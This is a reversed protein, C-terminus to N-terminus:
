NKPKLPLSAVPVKYKDKIYRLKQYIQNFLLEDDTRPSNRVSCGKARLEQLQAELEEIKAPMTMQKILKARQRKLHKIAEWIDSLSFIEVKGKDNIATLETTQPNFIITEKKKGCPLLIEKVVAGAPITVDDLNVSNM